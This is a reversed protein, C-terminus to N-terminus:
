AWRQNAERADNTREEICIYIDGKDFSPCTYQGTIEWEKEEEREAKVRMSLSGDGM